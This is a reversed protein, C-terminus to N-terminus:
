TSGIRDAALGVDAEPLVLPSVGLLEDALANGPGCETLRSPRWPGGAGGGAPSFRAPTRGRWNATGPTMPVLARLDSTSRNIGSGYRRRGRGPYRAGRLSTRSRVYGSSACSMPCRLDEGNAVHDAAAERLRAAPSGYM